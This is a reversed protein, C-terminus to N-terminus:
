HGVDHAYRRNKSRNEQASLAFGEQASIHMMGVRHGQRLSTPLETISANQSNDDTLLDSSSAARALPQDLRDALRITEEQLYRVEEHLDQETTVSCRPRQPSSQAWSQLPDDAWCIAILIITHWRLDSRTM